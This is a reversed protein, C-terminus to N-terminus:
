QRDNIVRVEYLDRKEKVEDVLSIRLAEPADAADLRTEAMEHKM